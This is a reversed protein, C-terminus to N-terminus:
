NINKNIFDLVQQKIQIMGEVGPHWRVLELNKLRVCPVEYYECASIMGAVMESKLGDNIINIIQAKPANKKLTSLIYCFAPNFSKLDDDTWDSHKLEGIPVNNGSDNTGGFLLVTDIYNNEFFGDQVLSLLRGVFSNKENYKDNERWTHCVTTGSFSSNLVLKSDTETILQNWWTQEVCNIRGDEIKGNKNYFSVYDSPIYGEFTSYSDGIILVNGLSKM